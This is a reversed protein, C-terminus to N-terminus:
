LGFQAGDFKVGLETLAYGVRSRRACGEPRWANSRHTTECTGHVDEASGTKLPEVRMVCDASEDIWEAHTGVDAHASVVVDVGSGLSRLLSDLFREVRAGNAGKDLLALSDAGDVFVCTRDSQVACLSDASARTLAARTKAAADRVAATLRSVSDGAARPGVGEDGASADNAALWSFAVGDVHVLTGRELAAAASERNGRAVKRGVALIENFNRELSVVVVGRHECARAILAAVLWSSSADLHDTIALLRSEASSPGTLDLSLADLM